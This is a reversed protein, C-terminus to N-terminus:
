LGGSIDLDSLSNVIVVFTGFVALGILVRAAMAYARRRAAAEPTPAQRWVGWLAFGWGVVGLAGGFVWDRAQNGYSCGSCDNHTTLYDLGMVTITVVWVIGFAWGVSYIVKKAVKSWRPTRGQEVPHSTSEIM